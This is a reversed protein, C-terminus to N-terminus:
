TMPCVQWEEMRTVIVHDARTCSVLHYYASCGYYETCSRQNASYLVLPHIMAARSISELTLHKLTRFELTIEQALAITSIVRFSLLLMTLILQIASWIDRKKDSAAYFTQNM